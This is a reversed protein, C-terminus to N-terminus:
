RRISQRQAQVALLGIGGFAICILIAFLPMTDGNSSNGDTSTVAPTVVPTGTAAEVITTGAATPTATEGQFGSYEGHM